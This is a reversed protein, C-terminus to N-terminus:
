SHYLSLNVKLFLSCNVLFFKKQLYRICTKTSALCVEVEQAVGRGKKLQTNKLNPRVKHGPQGSSSPAKEREQNNSFRVPSVPLSPLHLFSVPYVSLFNPGPTNPAQTSICLLRM